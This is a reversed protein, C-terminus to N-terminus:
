KISFRSIYGIMKSIEQHFVYDCRLSAVNHVAGTSCVSYTDRSVGEGASMM